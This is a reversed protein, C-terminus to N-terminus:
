MIKTNAKNSLQDATNRFIKLTLVLYSWCVEEQNVCIYRDEKIGERKIRGKTLRM